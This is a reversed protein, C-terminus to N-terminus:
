ALQSLSKASAPGIRALGTETSRASTKVRRLATDARRSGAEAGQPDVNLALSAM